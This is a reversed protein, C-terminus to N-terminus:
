GNHNENSNDNENINSNTNSNDDGPAVPEVGKSEIEEHPRASPNLGPLPLPSTLSDSHWELLRLVGGDGRDRMALATGSATVILLGAGILALLKKSNSLNKM